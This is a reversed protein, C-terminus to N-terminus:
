IYLFCIDSFKEAAGALSLDLRSFLSLFPDYKKNFKYSDISAQFALNNFGLVVGFSGGFCLLLM